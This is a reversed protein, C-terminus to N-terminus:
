NDDKKKKKLTRNYKKLDGKKTNFGIRKYYTKAENAKCDIIGERLYCVFSIRTFKKEGGLTGTSADEFHIKPLSKNYKKDSESEKMETNGHFEHVNMALYDGTRVNFGIRYRPFITYGGSYKGREIASLNGFGDKFDGADVHLATRFNRNITVSSFATDDIRFSPQKNARYLQKKYANPTLTKFCKDLFKIFPIGKQFNDFYRQTYSTLRCPLKMFPTEEFYGLVSSFVLNNVRMKSLKGNQMYRTSWGKIEVPKRKKWYIGKQAIPGAAAGRNRSTAATEYFSEWGTEIIDKPIVNKRFKALLEEKGDALEVYVDVDENYIKDADKETLYKGELAEIEENSLKAKIVVKEVDKRIAQTADKPIQVGEFLDEKTLNNKTAKEKVKEKKSDVM